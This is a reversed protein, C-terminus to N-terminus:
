PKVGLAAFRADIGEIPLIGIHRSSEHGMSDFFIQTPIASIRYSRAVDGYDDTDVYVINAKGAYRVAAQEVIPEMDQCARCWGAGFDAMTPVGSNLCQVFTSGPLPETTAPPAPEPKPSAPEPATPAPADAAKEAPPQAEPAAPARAVQPAAQRASEAGRKTLQKAAVVAIVAVVVLPILWKAAKM